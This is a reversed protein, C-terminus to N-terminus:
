TVKLLSCLSDSRAVGGSSHFRKSMAISCSFPGASLVSCLLLSVDSVSFSSWVELGLLLCPSYWSAQNSGM